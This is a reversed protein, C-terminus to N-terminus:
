RSKVSINQCLLGNHSSFLDLLSVLALRNRRLQHNYSGFNGIEHLM